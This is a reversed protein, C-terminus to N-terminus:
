FNGESSWLDEEDSFNGNFREDEEQRSGRVELRRKRTATTTTTTVRRNGSNASVTTTSSRNFERVVIAKADDLYPWVRTL